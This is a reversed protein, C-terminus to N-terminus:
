QILEEMSRVTKTIHVTEGDEINRQGVVVVKDGPAIGKRVQMQWGDQIGLEVPKLRAMNEELVFVADMENRKVLSYLPVALGEPVETKVIIVRAFMDPLIEIDPNEVAIELNYLRAFDDATKQLYHRTGEFKKGGLAEVTVSFRELRRVADVDSEPIGVEVKVRRIDLMKAVPNGVDMFQGPEVHVRDVIGDMPARISCRELALAANDMTAKSTRVTAVIDDIQAQTAVKDRFLKRLRKETAVAVEYAAKASAHANAYDRRDITALIEGKKVRAGESVAKSVITGKVEAVVQLTVWPKVYGPLSIKEQLLHPTVEMAVVNTAKRDKRLESSKKEKIVKGESRIEGGLMIIIGVLLIVVLMPMAKILRHLWTPRPPNTQITKDSNDTRDIQDAQDMQDM